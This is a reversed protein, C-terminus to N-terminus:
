HGEGPTEARLMVEIRRLIPSLTHGDRVAGQDSSIHGQVASFIETWEGVTFLLAVRKENMRNM